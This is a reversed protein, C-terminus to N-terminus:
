GGKRLLCLWNKNHRKYPFYLCQEERKKKLDGIAIWDNPSDLGLPICGRLIEPIRRKSQERRKATLEQPSKKRAELMQDAYMYAISARGEIFLDEHRGSNANSVMGTIVHAALADRLDFNEQNM